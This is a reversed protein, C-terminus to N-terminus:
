FVRGQLQLILALTADEDSRRQREAARRLAEVDVFEGETEEIIQPFALGLKRNLEANARNIRDTCERGGNRWFFYAHVIQNDGSALFDIFQQVKRGIIRMYLPRERVPSAEPTLRAITEVADAKQHITAEKASYIDWAQCLDFLDPFSIGLIKGIQLHAAQVDRDDNNVSLRENAVRQLLATLCNMLIKKFPGEQWEEPSSLSNALAMLTQTATEQVFLSQLSTFAIFLQNFDPRRYPFAAYYRGLEALLTSQMKVASIPAMMEPPANEPIPLPAVPAIAVEQLLANLEELFENEFNRKPISLPSLLQPARKGLNNAKIIARLAENYRFIEREQYNEILMGETGTRAQDFMDTFLEDLTVQFTHVEAKFKHPNGDYQPFLQQLAATRRRLEDVFNRHIVILEELKDFSAAVRTSGPSAREELVAVEPLPAPAATQCEHPPPPPPPPPPLQPIEDRLPKSRDLRNQKRLSFGFLIFLAISTAAAVSGTIIAAKYSVLRSLFPPRFIVGLAVGTVGLTLLAGIAIMGKSCNSINRIDM